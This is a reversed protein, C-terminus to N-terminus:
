ASSPMRSPTIHSSNLRTSKRDGGSGAPLRLYLEPAATVWSYGRDTTIPVVLVLPFRPKSFDEPVAVVIAPRLGEQERGQPSQSPLLADIVDGFKLSRTM